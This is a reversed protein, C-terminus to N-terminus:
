QESETVELFKLNKKDNKSKDDKARLLVSDTRLPIERIKWTKGGRSLAVSLTEVTFVYVIVMFVDKCSILRNQSEPCSKKKLMVFSNLSSEFCNKTLKIEKLDNWEDYIKVRPSCSAEWLRWLLKRQSSRSAIVHCTIKLWAIGLRLRSWELDCKLLDHM